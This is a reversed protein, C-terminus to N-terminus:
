PRVESPTAAADPAAQPAVTVTPHVDLGELAPPTGSSTCKTHETPDGRRVGNPGPSGTFVGPQVAENFVERWEKLAARATGVSVDAAAALARVTPLPQDEPLNSLVTLAAERAPARTPTEQREDPTEPAPPPTNHPAPTVAEPTTNDAEGEGEGDTTTEPQGTYDDRGDLDRDIFDQVRSPPPWTLSMDRILDDTTFDFRVKVAMGATDEDIVYGVGQHQKDDPIEHSRAGALTVAGDGLCMTTQMATPVRLCIRTPILDRLPGLLVSKQAVQALMMVGVGAARGQSVLEAFATTARDRWERDFTGLMLAEDFILLKFPEAVTPTFKRKYEDYLRGTRERMETVLEELLLTADQDRQDTKGVLRTFLERGIGLETGGKPDVGWLEVTGEHIYPLLERVAAWIVSGKGSGTYGIVLTHNSIASWTYPTGDERRAIPLADLPARRDMRPMTATRAPLGVVTAPAAHARPFVLRVERGHETVTPAPLHLRRALSPVTQAWDDLTATTNEATVTLADRDRTIRIIRPTTTAQGTLARRTRTAPTRIPDAQPTRAHENWATRVRLATPLLAAGRAARAANPPYTLAALAVAYPALAIGPDGHAITGYAFLALFAAQAVCAWPAWWSTRIRHHLTDLRTLTNTPQDRRVTPTTPTHQTPQPTPHTM